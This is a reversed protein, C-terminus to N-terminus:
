NDIGIFGKKDKVKFEVKNKFREKITTVIELSKSNTREKIFDKQSKLISGLEDDGFVFLNIKDNKQLGLKKRFSQVQRSIERAYGEAELEPTLKTDLKVSLEKASKLEVKKVNIEEEILKLYDKSLNAGKVELKSLPQKLAISASDREKLALSVVERTLEMDKELKKNIKKKDAKPWKQLHVSDKEFNVTQYVKEALFPLIPAIVKSFESLILKM